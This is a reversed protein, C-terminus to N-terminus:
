KNLIIFKGYDKFKNVAMNFGKWDSAEYVRKKLALHEKLILQNDEQMLSAKFDAANSTMDDIRENGVLKYGTPITMTENLEVLRSCRDKFAYKRHPLNTIYRYSEINNFLNNMILPKVLIHHETVVAYNPIEYRYVMKIPAKQYDKPNKGYDIKKVQAKPSVKLLTQELYDKWDSQWGSTFIRRLSLDTQGPISKIRILGSIAKAAWNM